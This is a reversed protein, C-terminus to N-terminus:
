AVGQSAWDQLWDPVENAALKLLDDRSLDLVTWGEDKGVRERVADMIHQTAAKKDHRNATEAAALLDSVEARLKTYNVILSRM